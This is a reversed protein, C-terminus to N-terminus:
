ICGFESVSRFSLHFFSEVIYVCSVINNVVQLFEHFRLYVITDYRRDPM